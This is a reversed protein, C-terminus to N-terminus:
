LDMLEDTPAEGMYSDLEDNLRAQAAKPDKMMYTDLAKDLDDASLPKKKAEVKKNSGLKSRNNGKQIQQKIKPTQKAGRHQQQKTIAKPTIRAIVGQQKKPIIGRSNRGLRSQIGGSSRKVIPSSPGTRGIRSFVSNNQTKTQTTTPKITTPAPKDLRGFRENLGGSVTTICRDQTTRLFQSM